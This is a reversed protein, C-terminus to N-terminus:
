TENGEGKCQNQTEYESKCHCGKKLIFPIAYLPKRSPARKLAALTINAGTRM